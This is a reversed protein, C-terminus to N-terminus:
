NLITPLLRDIFGGKAPEDEHAEEVDRACHEVCEPEQLVKVFNVITLFNGKLIGSRNKGPLTSM